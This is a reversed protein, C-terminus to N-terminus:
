VHARGIQLAKYQMEFPNDKITEMYAYLSDLNFFRINKLCSYDFNALIERFQALHGELEQKTLLKSM